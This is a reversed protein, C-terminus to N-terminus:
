GAKRQMGADSLDDRGLHNQCTALAFFGWPLHWCESSFVVNHSM